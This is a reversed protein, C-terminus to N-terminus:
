VAGVEAFCYLGVEELEVAEANLGFAKLAFALFTRSEAIASHPGLKERIALSRRAMVLAEPAQGQTQLYWGAKHLLSAQHSLASHGLLVVKLLTEAIPLLLRCISWAEQTPVPFSSDMVQMSLEAWRLGQACSLLSTRLSRQYIENLLVVDENAFVVFKHRRLRDIDDRGQKLLRVFCFKSKSSTAFLDCCAAALM